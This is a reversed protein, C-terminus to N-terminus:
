TQSKTVERTSNPVSYESNRKLLSVNFVGAKKPLVYLCPSSLSLIGNNTRKKPTKGSSLIWVHKM